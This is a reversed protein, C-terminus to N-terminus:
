KILNLAYKLGKELAEEFTKSGYGATDSIINNNRIDTITCQYFSEKLTGYKGIVKKCYNYGPSVDILKKERLWKQLKSQTVVSIDSQHKEPWYGNKIIIKNNLFVNRTPVNFGKTKALVATEYTILQEEM